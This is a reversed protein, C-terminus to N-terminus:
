RETTEKQNNIDRKEGQFALVFALVPVLVLVLVLVLIGHYFRYLKM